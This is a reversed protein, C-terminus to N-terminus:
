FTISLGGDVVISQGTIYTCRPSALFGVVEAIEEPQAPRALPIRRRRVYFEQFDPTEHENVGDVIAMPTEVFGPAVSNVLIGHPAWEVALCRTLQDVAGKASNYHSSNAMGLFANVSSINIIRGGQKQAAMVRGAAQSCLFTGHYIVEVARLWADFPTSLADANYFIGANNVLIDLRGFREVTAATMAAADRTVDAATFAAQGGARSLSAATTAGDSDPLDAIMVAAGARVFVEAVARGIGRAAGTVLAVKGSLDSM